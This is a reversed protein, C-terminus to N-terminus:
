SSGALTGKEPGMKSLGEYHRWEWVKWSKSWSTPHSLDRLFPTVPAWHHM